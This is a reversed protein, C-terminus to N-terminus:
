NNEIGSWIIARTSIAAKAIREGRFPILYAAVLQEAPDIYLASAGFGEHSLVGPTCLEFNPSICIGLGYTYEKLNMGWKFAPVPHLLQNRCMAEITKRGLLKTSNLTGNNLFLQGLKGMDALTSYLGNGARFPTGSLAEAEKLENLQWDNTICVQDHLAEPVVFFTNAMGLPRIIEQMIYDEYSMGSLRAIIEGLISFGATSYSWATGPQSQLPGALLRKIWNGEKSGAYWRNPYPENFYGPDAAIGSTHTLLHFINISKHAPNDFEPIINLIPRALQLKGNEALKMIALATVIKTISYVKRISDTMMPKADAEPTLTGMSRHAFVKGQRSLLYGACQLHNQEILELFHRDLEELKSPNYGVDTPAAETAGECVKIDTMLLKM